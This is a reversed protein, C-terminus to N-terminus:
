NRVVRVDPRHYRVLEVKVQGYETKATTLLPVRNADDSIWVTYTRPKKRRDPRLQSTLRTAIGEIKLAPTTGLSTKIAERGVFVVNNRWLRRGSLVYFYARSGEEPEWARLLGLISHGDHASAGGPMAQRKTYRNRGLRHYDIEYGGDLFQTSVESRKDGFKLSATHKVPDGSALDIWSTVDDRVDKWLRAVGTTRVQSRVIIVRKGDIAGPNGIAMMAEGGVIDRLSLEWSMQEGPIYFPQEVTLEVPPGVPVEYTENTRATNNAGGCGAAFALLAATFVAVGRAM